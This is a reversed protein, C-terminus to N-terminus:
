KNVSGRRQDREQLVEIGELVPTLSQPLSGNISPLLNISCRGRFLHLDRTRKLNAFTLADDELLQLYHM